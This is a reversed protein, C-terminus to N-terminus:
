ESPSDSDDDDDDDEGSLDFPATGHPLVPPPPNGEDDSDDSLNSEKPKIYGSHPYHASHPPPRPYEDKHQNNSMQNKAWRLLRVTYNVTAQAREQAKTTAILQEWREHKKRSVLRQIRAEEERALGNNWDWAPMYKSGDPKYPDRPVSFNPHKPHYPPYEHNRMKNAWWDDSAQYWPPKPGSNPHWPSTPSRPKDKFYASWREDYIEMRELEEGAFDQMAAAYASNELEMRKKAEDNAENARNLASLIKRYQRYRHCLEFFWNRHTWNANPKSRGNPFVKATLAQWYMDPACAAKNTSNLNCWRNAAECALKEIEQVGRNSNIQLNALISAIIDPNALAERQAARGDGDGPAGTAFVGLRGLNPLAM